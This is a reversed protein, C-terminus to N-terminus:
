NVVTPVMMNIILFVVVEELRLLSEPSGVLLIRAKKSAFIPQVVVEQAQNQIYLMPQTLVEMVEAM